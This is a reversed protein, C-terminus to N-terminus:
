WPVPTDIQTALWGLHIETGDICFRTVFGETGMIHDGVKDQNEILAQDLDRIELAHRCFDNTHIELKRNFDDVIDQLKM